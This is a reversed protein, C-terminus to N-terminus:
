ALLTQGDMRGERGESRKAVYDRLLIKMELLPPLSPDHKYSPDDLDDDDKRHFDWDHIEFDDSAHGVSDLIDICSLAISHFHLDRSRARLRYGGYYISQFCSLAGQYAM